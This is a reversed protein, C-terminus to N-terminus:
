WVKCKKAPNMRSGVPCKYAKAFEQSNSLSGIVRWQGPSHVGNEVASVAALPRFSSCWIQAFSLFFLQDHNLDLGPLRKEEKGNKKKWIQYAQFSQKIGGNDAINEGLTQLGNLNKGHFKYNSYQEVLCKTKEEFAKISGNTWWKKLNGDKNFKRGNDDFGHSIEHGVVMGIGGYNLSKPHSEDYFPDQLIGAPFVIKNDSSSYYANVTPPTMSWITKDVPKGIEQYNKMNDFRKRNLNNQFHTTKNVDFGKYEKALKTANVIYTPYGINERIAEAKDKAAKKTEEDMWEIDKLNDIFVGRIAHIMEEASKKSTGSFKKDVFLLGVAMGFAKQVESMCTQWRPDEGSTGMISKRYEDFVKTYEQSLYAGNLVVVHWMLYNAIIRKETAEFVKSVNKMYDLAYVVVEEDQTINYSTEAFMRVLFETLNIQSPGIEEILKKLTMKKYIANSDRRQEKPIFIRALEKEFAYVEDARAQAEDGAGVLRMLNVMFKKYAGRVKKHYTTNFFYSERSIGIGNQDFVIVNKTSDKLDTAVFMNFLLAISLEKQIKVFNTMFDWSNASWKKDTVNWSGYDKILQELPKGGLKEIREIDMCADFYNFAKVVAENKSHKKRIEPDFILQKLVEENREYLIKFQSWATKSDPIPNNKIWGGCAYSYFDDCPKVSKNMANLIGKSAYICFEDECIEPLTPKLALRLFLAFFIVVLIVLIAIVVYLFRKTKICSKGKKIKTDELLDVKVDGDSTKTDMPSAYDNMM